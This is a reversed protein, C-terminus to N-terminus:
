GSDPQGHRRRKRFGRTQAGISRIGILKAPSAETGFYFRVDNTGDYTIAAYLWINSPLPNFYLPASVISNNIRAYLANTTQFHMQIDNATANNDVVGNTGMIFIRGGRNLANTISSDQKFWLAITFNSVVGLTGLTANNTVQAIPGNIVGNGAAGLM